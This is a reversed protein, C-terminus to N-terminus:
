HRGFSALVDLKKSHVGLYLRLALARISNFISKYCHQRDDTARKAVEVMHWKRNSLVQM